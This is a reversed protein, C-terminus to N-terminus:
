AIVCLLLQELDDTVGDAIQRTRAAHYMEMREEFDEVLGAASPRSGEHLRVEFDSDAPEGGSKRPIRYGRRVPHIKCWRDNGRFM